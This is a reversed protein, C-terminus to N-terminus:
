LLNAAALSVDNNVAMEVTIRVTNNECDHSFLVMGSISKIEINM